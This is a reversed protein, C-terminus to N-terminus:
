PRSEFHDSRRLRRTFRGRQLFDCRLYPSCEEGCFHCQLITGPVSPKRTKKNRTLQVKLVDRLPKIASGQHTVKQANRVRFRRQRAANNFRGKRTSRYKKAARKRAAIQALSRCPGSCYRQGRDCRSCIIVPAHCRCCHYLRSSVSMSLVGIDSPHIRWIPCVSGSM